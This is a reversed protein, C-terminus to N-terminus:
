TTERPEASVEYALRVGLANALRQLTARTPMSSGHIIRNLNERRMGMRRACDAQTEDGLAVIIQDGIDM